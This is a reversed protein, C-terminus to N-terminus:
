LRHCLCIPKQCSCTGRPHRGYAGHRSLSRVPLRLQPQQKIVMADYLEPRHTVLLVIDLFVESLKEIINEILSQAKGQILQKDFGMRKAKGGALIVATAFLPDPYSIPDMSSVGYSPTSPAYRRAHAASSANM